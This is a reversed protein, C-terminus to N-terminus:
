SELTEEGFLNEMSDAYECAQNYLNSDVNGVFDVFHNFWELQMKLKEMTETKITICLRPLWFDHLREFCIERTEGSNCLSM